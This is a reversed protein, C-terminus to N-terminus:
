ILIFYTGNCTVGFNHTAKPVIAVTVIDSGSYKGLISKRIFVLETSDSQLDFPREHLSGFYLGGQIEIVKVRLGDFTTGPNKQTYFPWELSLFLGRSIVFNYGWFWRGFLSHQAFTVALGGERGRKILSM